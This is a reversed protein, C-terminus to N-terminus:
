YPNRANLEFATKLTLAVAALTYILGDVEGLSLGALVACGLGLVLTILPHLRM